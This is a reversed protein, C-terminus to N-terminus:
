SGFKIKNQNGQYQIGIWMYSPLLSNYNKLISINVSPRGFGFAFNIIKLNKEDYITPYKFSLDFDYIQPIYRCKELFYYHDDDVIYSFDRPEELESILINNTHLDNHQFGVETYAKITFLIQFYVKKLENMPINRRNLFEQFSIGNVRENIMITAKNIDHEKQLEKIQRNLNKFERKKQYMYNFVFNKSKMISYNYVLHPTIKNEILNNTVMSYFMAEYKHVNLDISSEIFSVKVAIPIDRFNELFIITESSSASLEEPSLSDNLIFNKSSCEKQIIKNNEILKDLSNM